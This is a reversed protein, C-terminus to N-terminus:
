PPSSGRPESNDASFGLQELIVQLAELPLGVVNSLSGALHTVFISGAGQIAYGGAKGRPEGTSLYWELHRDVDSTFTVETRVVTEITKAGQRVCLGSLAIHTQGAYYNRFWDRVTEQWTDNEPPQGLAYSRGSVDHVVIATDAAVVVVQDTTSSRGSSRLIQDFVDIAKARAIEVIRCEIEPLTCLGDFGAENSDRPPVIEILAAPALLQLLEKRRVSRSALVLHSRGTEPSGTMNPM